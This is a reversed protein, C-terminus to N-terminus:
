LTQLRVTQLLLTVTCIIGLYMMWIQPLQLMGFCLGMPILTFLLALEDRQRRQHFLWLLIAILAVYGLTLWAPLLWGSNAAQVVAPTATSGPMLSFLQGARELLNPNLAGSKGTQLVWWTGVAPLAALVTMIVGHRNLWGREPALALYGSTVLYASAILLLTTYATPNTLSTQLYSRVAIFTVLTVLLQIAVRSRAYYGALAVGAIIGVVPLQRAFSEASSILTALWPHLLWASATM